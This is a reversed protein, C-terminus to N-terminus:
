HDYEFLGLVNILLEKTNISTEQSRQMMTNFALYVLFSKMLLLDVEKSIMDTGYEINFFSTLSLFFVYLLSFLFNYNHPETVYLALQESFKEYRHNGKDKIPSHKVMWQTLKRSHVCLIATLTLSIFAMTNRDLIMGLQGIGLMILISIAGMFFPVGVFAVLITLTPQVLKILLLLVAIPFQLFDIVKSFLRNNVRDKIIQLLVFVGICLVLYLLAKQGYKTLLWGFGILVLLSIFLLGFLIIRLKNEDSLRIGEIIDKISRPRIFEIRESESCVQVDTVLEHYPDDGGNWLLPYALVTKDSLLVLVSRSEVAGYTGRYKYFLKRKLEHVNKRKVLERNVLATLPKKLMALIAKDKHRESYLTCNYIVILSIFVSPIVALCTGLTYYEAMCAIVLIAVVICPIIWLRSHHEFKFCINGQRNKWIIKNKTM